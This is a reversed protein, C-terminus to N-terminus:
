NLNLRKEGVDEQRCNFTGERKLWEILNRSHLSACVLGLLDTLYLETENFEIIRLIASIIAAWRRKRVILIERDRDGGNESM